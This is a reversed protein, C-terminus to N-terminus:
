KQRKKIGRRIIVTAPIGAVALAGLSLLIIRQTPPESDRDAGNEGDLNTTEEPLSEAIATTTKEATSPPTTTTIIETTTTPRATTTTTRQATTTAAPKTTTTAPEPTAVFGSFSKPVLHDTGNEKVTKNQVTITQSSGNVTLRFKEVFELGIQIRINAYGDPSIYDTYPIGDFGGAEKQLTSASEYRFIWNEWDKADTLFSGTGSGYGGFGFSDTVLNKGVADSRQFMIVNGATYIPRTWGEPFPSAKLVQLTIKLKGSKVKAELYGNDNQVYLKKFYVDPANAAASNITFLATTALLSVIILALSAITKLKRMPNIGRENKM